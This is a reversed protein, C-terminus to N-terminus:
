PPCRWAAKLGAALANRPPGLRCSASAPALRFIRLRHSDLEDLAAGIGIRSLLARIRDRDAGRQADGHGLGFDSKEREAVREAPSGPDVRGVAALDGHRRRWAGDVPHRGSAALDRRYGEAFGGAAM